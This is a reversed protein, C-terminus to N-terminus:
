CSDSLWSVYLVASVLFVSFITTSYVLLVTGFVVLNVTALLAMLSSQTLFAEIRKHDGIRQLLDGTNKSDFFGLPLRMLQILFDAILSINIRTSVHLLIWSQIFRVVTQGIFLMLQGALVLYIFNLDRTEIGIDVLSQTLFPFILQFVTGLLLGIILQVFLKKYPKLYSLLFNVGKSNEAKETEYFEPMPELLLAVGSKSEACYSKEFEEFTLEVKGSAPDAVKVAKKGIKYLVIFHNQNWHVIAPLPAESLSPLDRENILPLKVAVTRFGILEAAESIGRLSVGAKDIYCKERLFPLSYTKGYYKAVMRLCTPGCDM